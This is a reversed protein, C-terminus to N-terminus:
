KDSHLRRYAADLDMKSILIRTHPFEIRQRHIGHLIRHLCHKYICEDLLDANTDINMSHGSPAPFSCYHTIRRKITRHGHIDLSQQTIIGLPLVMANKIKYVSDVTIPILWGHEIEKLYGKQLAASNDSVTTSKHNGRTIMSALDVKQTTETAIENTTPVDCGESIIKRIKHWDQHHGLLRELTSITTFESGPTLITDQQSTIFQKFDFNSKELLAANTKAAEMTNEFTIDHPKPDQEQQSICYKITTVLWSFQPNPCSDNLSKSLIKKAHAQAALRARVNTNFILLINEEKKAWKTMNTRVDKQETLLQDM